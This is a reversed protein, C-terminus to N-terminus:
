MRRHDAQRRLEADDGCAENLSDDREAPPKQVAIAFISEVNM